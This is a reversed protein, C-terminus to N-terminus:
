VMMFSWTRGPVNYRALLCGMQPRLGDRILSPRLAKEKERTIDETPKGSFKLVGAIGGEVKRSSISQQNPDPLCSIDTDWPLAIQISVKSLKADFAQTFVPTSVPIKEGKSNKGFIYGAVDNFGTSGALKDGNTEVVIVFQVM